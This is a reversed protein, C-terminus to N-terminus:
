QDNIQITKTREALGNEVLGSIFIPGPIDADDETALTLGLSGGDRILEVTFAVFKRRM